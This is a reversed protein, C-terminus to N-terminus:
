VEIDQVYWRELSIELHRRMAERSVKPDGGRLAELVELHILYEDKITFLPGGRERVFEALLNTIPMMMQELMPNHAARAVAIHFAQALEVAEQRSTADKLREVCAELREFDEPTAREAALGAIAVEVVARAEHLQELERGRQLTLGLVDANLMSETRADKVVAGHGPRIEIANALALSRLAERLVPRSVGLEKVLEKEPPLSDGPNLHGAKIQGLIEAIIAQSLTVKQVAKMM